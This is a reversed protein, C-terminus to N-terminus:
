KSHKLLSMYEGIDKRKIRKSTCRHTAEENYNISECLM